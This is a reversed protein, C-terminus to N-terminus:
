KKVDPAEGSTQYSGDLARSGTSLLESFGIAEANKMTLQGAPQGDVFVLLRTQVANSRDYRVRLQM